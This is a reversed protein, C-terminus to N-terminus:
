ECRGASTEDLTRPYTSKAARAADLDLDLTLFPRDSSTVGLVVGDPDIIWGLGGFDFGNTSNSSLSYAGASIAVARGAVLWKDRTETGTRRPSLILDAGRQGLRRADDFFWLESCILFGIQAQGAPHVETKAPGRQYWSRECCPFEDPLRTKLHVDAWGSTSTWLFAENHRNTTGIPRTAAVVSDGLQRLRTEAAAHASVAESWVHRDFDQTAAFWASFPMEPLLVLESREARVHEVLARWERDFDDNVDTLQCVTARV